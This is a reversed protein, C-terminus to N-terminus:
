DALSLPITVTVGGPRFDGALRVLNPHPEWGRVRSEVHDITEVFLEFRREGRERSIWVLVEEVSDAGTVRQPDHQASWEIDDGTWFCVWHISADHQQADFFSEDWTAEV